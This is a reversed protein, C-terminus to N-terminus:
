EHCVEFTKLAKASCPIIEISQNLRIESVSMSMRSNKSDIGNQSVESLTFAGNWSWLRRANVLDIETGNQATVEGIHIGASYTRILCIKGVYPNKKEGKIQGNFIQAIERCEGITLENINM